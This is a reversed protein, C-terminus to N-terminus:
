SKRGIRLEVYRVRGAKVAEKIQKERLSLSSDGTKVEIILLERIEKGEAAGPFAVFDIPKGVFRADAPNCPFNPLYPALQEAAQGGLVARSRKIADERAKKVIFSDAAKQIFRGILIGLLLFFALIVAGTVFLPINTKIFTLIQNLEIERLTLNTGM